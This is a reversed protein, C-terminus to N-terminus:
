VELYMEITGPSSGDETDLDYSRGRIKRKSLKAEFSQNQSHLNDKLKKMACISSTNHVQLKMEADRNARLSSAPTKSRSFAEKQSDRKTLSSHNSISRTDPNELLFMVDERALLLHLREKYHLYRVDQVAGYYEIAQSYLSLLQKVQGLQCSNYLSGELDLVEQAFSSSLPTISISQLGKFTSNPKM